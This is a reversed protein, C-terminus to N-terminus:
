VLRCVVVKILVHLFVRLFFVFTVTWGWGGSFDIRPTVTFATNSTGIIWVHHSPLCSLPCFGKM